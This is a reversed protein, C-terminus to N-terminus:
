VLFYRTVKASTVNQESSMIDTAEHFSKLLEGVKELEFINSDSPFSLDNLKLERKVRVIAVYLLLFREIMVATSNWRTECDRKMKLIAMKMDKLVHALHMSSKSSRKFHSAIDRVLRLLEQLARNKFGDKVVLNSTHPYCGVWFLKMRSATAKMVEANDSVLARIKQFAGKYPTFVNEIVDAHGAASQDELESIGVTM